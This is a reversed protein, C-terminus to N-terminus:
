LHKCGLLMNKEKKFLKLSKKKLLNVAKDLAGGFLYVDILVLLVSLKLSLKTKKNAGEQTSNLAKFLCNGSSVKLM